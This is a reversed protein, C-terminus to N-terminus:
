FLGQHQSLNFDLPSASSMPCPQQIADGVRHVRTQALKPLHHLVLFGPMSCDM